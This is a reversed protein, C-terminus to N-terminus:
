LTIFPMLSALGKNRFRNRGSESLFEVYMNQRRIKLIGLFNQILGEIPHVYAVTENM